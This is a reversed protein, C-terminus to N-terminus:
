GAFFAPKRGSFDPMGSEGVEIGQIQFPSPFRGIRSTKRIRHFFFIGYILGSKTKLRIRCTLFLLDPVSSIRPADERTGPFLFRTM